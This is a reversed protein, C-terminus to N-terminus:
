TKLKAFFNRSIAHKEEANPNQMSWVCKGDSIAVVGSIRKYISEGNKRFFIGDRRTIKDAPYTTVAGEFVANFDDANAMSSSIELAIINPREESLQTKGKDNSIVEEIANRIRGVDDIFQVTQGAKLFDELEKLLTKVEIHIQTAGHDVTFDARRGSEVRQGALNVILGTSSFYTACSIEGLLALLNKEDNVERIKKILSSVNKCNVLVNAGLIKKHLIPKSKCKKELFPNESIALEIKNM